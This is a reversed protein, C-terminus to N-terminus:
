SCGLLLTRIQPGWFRTPLKTSLIRLVAGNRASSRLLHKGRDFEEPHSVILKQWNHVMVQSFDSLSALQV